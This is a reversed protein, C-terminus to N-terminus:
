HKGTCNSKNRLAFNPIQSFTLFWAINLFFLINEFTFSLLYSAKPLQMAGFYKLHSRTKIAYAARFYFISACQITQSRDGIIEGCTSHTLTLSLRNKVLVLVATDGFSLWVKGHIFKAKSQCIHNWYMEYLLVAPVGCLTEPRCCTAKIEPSHKM